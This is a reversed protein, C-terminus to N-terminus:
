GGADTDPGARRSRGRHGHHHKPKGVTENDDAGAAHERRWERMRRGM